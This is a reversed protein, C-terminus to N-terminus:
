SMEMFPFNLMTIYLMIIEKQVFFSIQLNTIDFNCFMHFIFVWM